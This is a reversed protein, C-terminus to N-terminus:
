REEVKGGVQRTEGVPFLTLRCELWFFPFLIIYIIFVSVQVLVRQMSLRNELPRAVLADVSDTGATRPGKMELTAVIFHLDKDYVSIDGLKRFHEDRSEHGVAFRRGLRAVDRGCLAELVGVLGSVLHTILMSNWDEETWNYAMSDTIYQEAAIMGRVACQPIVTELFAKSLGKGIENVKFVAPPPLGKSSVGGAITASGFKSASTKKRSGKEGTRNEKTRKKGKIGDEEKDEEDEKGEEGVGEGDIEELDMAHSIKEVHRVMLRALRTLWDGVTLGDYTELCDEKAKFSALASRGAM